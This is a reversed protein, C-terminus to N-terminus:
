IVSAARLGAIESGDYGLSTLLEDSHEGLAPAPRSATSGFMGGIQRVSGEGPQDLASIQESHRDLAEALTLAPGVCVEADGFFAMWQDRTRSAFIADLDAFIRAQGPWPAHQLAAYQERDLMHCLNTWFRPEVAAVTLAGGDATAYVSYYAYGGSLPGRGGAPITGTAWQEAAYLALWRLVGDTMSIDLAQGRGTRRRELLAALIGFACYLGAASDAVAIGARVPGQGPLGTVSMLGGMGQAIQDFGPRGAYPGTQGFGSI